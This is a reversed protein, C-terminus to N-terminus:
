LIIANMIYIFNCLYKRKTSLPYVVVVFIHGVEYLVKPRLLQRSMACEEEAPLVGPGVQIGLEVLVAVQIIGM